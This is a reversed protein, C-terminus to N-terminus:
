RRIIEVFFLLIFVALGTFLACLKITRDPIFGIVPVSVAEGATTYPNKLSGLGVIRVFRDDAQGYGLSRAYMKITEQDYLLNNQANELEANIAGLKNLNAWQLDRGSLLQEYASFGMAGYLLSLVTYVAAAAWLAALYKLVKM